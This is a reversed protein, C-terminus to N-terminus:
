EGGGMGQCDKGKCAADECGHEKNACGESSCRPGCGGDDMPAPPTSADIAPATSGPMVAADIESTLPPSAAGGGDAAADEIDVIFYDDKMAFSCGGLLIALGGAVLWVSRQM